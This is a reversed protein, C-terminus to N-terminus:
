GDYIYIYFNADALGLSGILGEGLGRSPLM